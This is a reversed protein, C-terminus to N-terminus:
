PWSKILEFNQKVVNWKLLKIKIIHQTWVSQHLLFHMHGDPIPEICSYDTEVAFGPYHFFIPLRDKERDIFDLISVRDVLWFPYHFPIELEKSNDDILMKMKFNGYEPDFIYGFFSRQTPNLSTLHLPSRNSM